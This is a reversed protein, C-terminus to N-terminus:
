LLLIKLVLKWYFYGEIAINYKYSGWRDQCCKKVNKFCRQAQLIKVEKSCRKRNFIKLSRLTPLLYKKLNQLELLAQLIHWYKREVFYLEYQDFIWKM